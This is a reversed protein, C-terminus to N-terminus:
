STPTAAPTGHDDPAAGGATLMPASRSWVGEITLDGATVADADEPAGTGVTVTVAVDGANAFALTLQFQDGPRLDRTLNILMVHYGQPELSVTEGAPIELGAPLPKMTMVGGDIAMTHIEVIQAVDTTAGVLTDASAGDNRIQMYAAGTGTNTAPSAAPSASPTGDHSAGPHATSAGATAFLGAILLVLGTFMSMATMRRQM